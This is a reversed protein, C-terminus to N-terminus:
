PDFHTGKLARAGSRSAVIESGDSLRLLLRRDFPEISKVQDLNVIHSRHVRRFRAPDLRREFDNLTISMLYSKGSAHIEVYDDAATIRLINEVRVPVARGRSDRVFLRQVPNTGMSELASEARESLSPIDIGNKNADLIVKIRDISKLFREIGFPKLLYDLAGFEFATVAYDDFATTFIVFPQHTIRELVQLGSLLPMQVDLFVLEPRLEDIMRIASAGDSAEGIVELWNVRAAFDRLTLRAPLEDEVILARVKM